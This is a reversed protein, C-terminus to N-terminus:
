SEHKTRLYEDLKSQLAQMSPDELKKTAIAIDNRIAQILEDTTCLCLFQTMVHVIERNFSALSSPLRACALSRVKAPPNYMVTCM